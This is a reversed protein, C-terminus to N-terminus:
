RLEVRDKLGELSTELLRRHAERALPAVTISFFKAIVTDGLDITERWTVRSGRETAELTISGPVAYDRDVDRLIVAGRHTAFEGKERGALVLGGLHLSEYEISNPGVARIELRGSGATDESTWEFRAGVGREAGSYTREVEAHADRNWASWERWRQLDEVLPYVEAVPAAVEIQAESTWDRPLDRAWRWGLFALVASLLFVGLCGGCCWKLWKTM